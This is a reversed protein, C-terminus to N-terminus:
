RSREKWRRPQPCGTGRVRRRRRAPARRRHIRREFHLSIEHVSWRFFASSLQGLEACGFRPQNNRRPRTCCRSRTKSLRSLASCKRVASGSRGEKFGISSDQAITQQQQDGFAMYIPNCFVLFPKDANVSASLAPMAEVEVVQYGYITVKGNVDVIPNYWSSAKGQAKSRFHSVFTRHMLLVAGDHAPTPAGDILLRVDDFDVDNYHTKTAALAQKYANGRSNTNGSTPTWILGNYKGGASVQDTFGIVDENKALARAIAEVVIQVIGPNSMMVLKIPIHTLVARINTTLTFQAFTPKSETPAVNEDIWYSTMEGDLAPMTLKDTDMPIIRFLKRAQGYATLLKLLEARYQPPVLFGGVTNTAANLQTTDRKLTNKVFDAYGPVMM